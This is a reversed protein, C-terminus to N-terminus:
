DFRPLVADFDPKFACFTCFTPNKATKFFHLYDVEDPDLFLM